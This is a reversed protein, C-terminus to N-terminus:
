VMGGENAYCISKCIEFLLPIIDFDGAKAICNVARSNSGIIEQAFVTPSQNYHCQNRTDKMNHITAGYGLPLASTQLVKIAPEFGAPAQSHFVGTIRTIVPTKWKHPM